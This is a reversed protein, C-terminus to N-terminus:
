KQSKKLSSLSPTIKGALWQSIMSERIGIKKAFKQQTFESPM